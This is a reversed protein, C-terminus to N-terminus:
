SGFHLKKEMGPLKVYVLHYSYHNEYSKHATVCYSHFFGFWTSFCNSNGIMKTGPNEPGWCINTSLIFDDFEPVSTAQPPFFPLRSHFHLTNLAFGMERYRM